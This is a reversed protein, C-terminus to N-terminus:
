KAERRRDVFHYVWIRGATAAGFRETFSLHDCREVAALAAREFEDKIEVSVGSTVHVIKREGFLDGNRSYNHMIGVTMGPVVRAPLGQQWCLEMARALDEVNRIQAPRQHLLSQPQGELYEQQAAVWGASLVFAAGILLRAIGRCM